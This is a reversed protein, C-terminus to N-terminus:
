VKYKFEQILNSSKTFFNVYTRSDLNFFKIITWFQHPTIGNDIQGVKTYTRIMACRRECAFAVQRSCSMVGATLCRMMNMCEMGKFHSCGFHVHGICISGECLHMIGDVSNSVGDVSKGCVM